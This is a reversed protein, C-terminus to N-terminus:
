VSHVIRRRSVATWWAYSRLGRLSQAVRFDAAVQPSRLEGVLERTATILDRVEAALEPSITELALLPHVAKETAGAAVTARQTLRELPEPLLRDDNAAVLERLTDMAAALQPSDAAQRALLQQQSRALELVERLMDDPSRHEPTEDASGSDTQIEKFRKALRPWYVEFQERLAPEALPRGVAANLDQVLALTDRETASKAQFQTLPGRPLDSTEMGLLYPVVRGDAISKSLAGAEFNLWPKAVNSPTLCVIGFHTDQLKGAIESSWREGSAIDVGSAFPELVQIVAPLWRRLEEAVQQSPVGSWSLFVKM